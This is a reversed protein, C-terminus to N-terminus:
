IFMDKTENTKLNFKILFVIQLNKNLRTFKVQSKLINAQEQFKNKHSIEM